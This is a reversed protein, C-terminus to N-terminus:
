FHKSRTPYCRKYTCWLTSSM